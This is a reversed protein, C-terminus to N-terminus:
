DGILALRRHRRLASRSLRTLPYLILRFSSPQLHFALAAPDSGGGREVNAWPGGEAGGFVGAAKAFGSACQVNGSMLINM